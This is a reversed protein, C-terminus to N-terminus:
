FLRATNLFYLHAHHFRHTFYLKFAGFGTDTGHGAGGHAADGAAFDTTALAGDDTGDEAGDGATDGTGRRLFPCGALLADLDGDLEVTAPHDGDGLRRIFLELHAVAHADQGTTADRAHRM